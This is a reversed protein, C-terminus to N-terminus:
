FGGWNGAFSAPRLLVAAGDGGGTGDAAPPKEPADLTLDGDAVGTLWKIADDYRRRADKVDEDRAAEFLRYIAIDCCVRTLVTPVPALPVAFRAALYSDIEASADALAQDVRAALPQGDASGSLEAILRAQMRAELDAATAYM